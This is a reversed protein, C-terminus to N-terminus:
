KKQDKSPNMMASTMASYKHKTNLSKIKLAEKETSLVNNKAQDPDEATAQTSKTVTPLVSVHEDEPPEDEVANFEQNERKAERFLNQSTKPTGFLDDDDLDDFLSQYPVNTTVQHEQQKREKQVAEQEVNEANNKSEEEKKLYQEKKEEEKREQAM